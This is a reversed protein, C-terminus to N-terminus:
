SARNSTMKRVVQIVCGIIALMSLAAISLITGGAPNFILASVGMLCLLTISAGLAWVWVPPMGVDVVEQGQEELDLCRRHDWFPESPHLFKLSM